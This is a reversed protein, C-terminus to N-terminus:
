PRRGYTIYLNFYCHYDKNSYEEAVQVAFEKVQEYSWGLFRTFLALMISEVGATFNQMAWFGIKKLHPERAWPGLPWKYPIRVIDVFGATHMMAAARGCTDLEFGSRRGAEMM